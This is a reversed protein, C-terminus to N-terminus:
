DPLLASKEFWQDIHPSRQCRRHYTRHVEKSEMPYGHGVVQAGTEVTPRQKNHVDSGSQPM